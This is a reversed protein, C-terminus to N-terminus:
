ILNLNLLFKKIKWYTFASFNKLSFNIKICEQYSELKRKAIYGQNSINSIKFRKKNIFKHNDILLRLYQDYDSACIYEENFPFGKIVETM